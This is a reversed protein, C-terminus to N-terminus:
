PTVTREESLNADDNMNQVVATPITSIAIESHLAIMRLQVSTSGSTKDGQQYMGNLLPLWPMM